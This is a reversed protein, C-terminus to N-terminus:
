YIKQKVIKKYNNLKFEYDKIQQKLKFIEQYLNKNENLIENTDIIKNVNNNITKNENVIKNITNKRISEIWKNKLHFIFKKIIIRIRKQKNFDDIIHLLELKSAHKIKIYDIIKYYKIIKLLNNRNM